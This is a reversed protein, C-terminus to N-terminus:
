LWCLHWKNAFLVIEISFKPWMYQIKEVSIFYTLFYTM